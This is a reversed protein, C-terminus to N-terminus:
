LTKFKSDKIKIFYKEVYKFSFYSLFITLGPILLYTFINFIYISDYLKLLKYSIPFVLFMVFPHYMYIGYSINGLFSFSRNTFIGKNTQDISILILLLFLFGLIVSQVYLDFIPIAILVGILIITIFYTIPSKTYDTIKGTFRSYCYGGAAGIAMFEFPIISAIYSLFSKPYFINFVFFIMLMLGFVWILLKKRFFAIILPWLIYFQEEVGVSWSQSAGVVIKGLKLAVNPLFMIYLLISELTYNTFNMIRNYYVPTGSFINFHKALFPVIVFAIMIIMYYLPWIRFIRRLYFKRFNIAGNKEKESILLYTILFGSLVFFLYVGNKGLHEIFYSFYRNKFLSKTGGLFKFLEIHHFIVALAAVARLENLGSFFITKRSSEM